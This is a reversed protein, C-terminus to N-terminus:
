FFDVAKVDIFRGPLTIQTTQLADATPCNADANAATCYIRLNGDEVVYEVYRSSFGQLGTVDGNDPPIVVSNNTTNYISLCGRVEGNPNNVDGVETCDNSGIFLQGGQSMDMRDHYGDTIAIEAAPNNFYPDQMTSLNVIDLTGCYTAATAAASPIASCLPGTPTGTGAVYLTSGTLFGMTAGNVPITATVSLTALNFISVSAQTGGCQAGCNLIYATSGDASYIAFVPRDFGPIVICVAPNTADDCGLDVPPVSVLPSIVSMSNSDSSFVLLQSGSSNSVVTQAGPVGIATNIANGSLNLVEVAGPTSWLNNTASPVAAYAFSTTSPLVMSTTNGPLTISGTNAETTTNIVQVALGTSDFALLTSLNASTVMLGPASGAQIESSRALTDNEADIIFLGGQGSASTVSQSIMVRTAAKSPPEKFPSSKGGCSIFGLSACILVFLVAVARKLGFAGLPMFFSSKIAFNHIIVSGLSRSARARWLREM